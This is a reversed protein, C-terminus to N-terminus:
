LGDPHTKTCKVRHSEIAKSKEFLRHCNICLYNGLMDHEDRLHGMLGPEAGSIENNKANSKICHKCKIVRNPNNPCSYKFHRRGDDARTCNKNCSNCTFKANVHTDMHANKLVPSLSILGCSDCSLVDAHHHKCHNRLGASTTVWKLCPVVRCFHVQKSHKSMYHKAFADPDSGNFSCVKCFYILTVTMMKPMVQQQVQTMTKREMQKQDQVFKQQHLLATLFTKM